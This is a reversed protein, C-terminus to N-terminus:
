NALLGARNSLGRRPDFFTTMAVLLLRTATKLSPHCCFEFGSPREMRIKRSGAYRQPLSAPSCWAYNRAAPRLRGTALWSSM